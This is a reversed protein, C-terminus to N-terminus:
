KSITYRKAFDLDGQRAGCPAVSISIIRAKTYLSVCIEHICACVTIYITHYYLNYLLISQVTIYITHYYLNYPLIFQITIYITCYYLNYLLISQVTIYITHYYLNYPLIFQVIHQSM